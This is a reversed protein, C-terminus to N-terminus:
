DCPVGTTPKLTSYQPTWTVGSYPIVPTYREVDVEYSVVDVGEQFTQIFEQLKEVVLREHEINMDLELFFKIKSKM